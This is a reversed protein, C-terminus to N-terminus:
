NECDGMDLVHLLIGIWCYEFQLRLTLTVGQSSGLLLQWSAAKNNSESTGYASYLANPLTRRTGEFYTSYPFCDRCKEKWSAAADSALLNEKLLRHTKIADAHDQRSAPGAVLGLRWEIICVLICASYRLKTKAVHKCAPNISIPNGSYWTM